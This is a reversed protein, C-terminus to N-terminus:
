DSRLQIGRTEPFTWVWTATIFAFGAALLLGSSVGAGTAIVVMLWQTVVQFSRSVNYVTGMATNRISTPFLEALLAGFGATCGSGFGVAAMTLWFGTRQELMEAGWFGLAVLGAMTLLGYLTFTPRRGFRDALPGFLVMGLVLAVQAGLQLNRQLSGFDGSTVGAAALRQKELEMFYDPLWVFTLWFTGLKSAGLVLGQLTRRWHDRVLVVYPEVLSRQGCESQALWMASEPVHRRLFFVLAAPLAGLFFVWRWGIHPELWLGSLIALIGGVPQGAQLLASALGRRHRPFVEALLAQGTAWEGGFGFGTIARLFALSVLSWALGSLGTSLSYVLITWGMVRRRGFRDALGGFVVGGLGSTFLAIGLLLAKNKTFSDGWHWEKGIASAVFAFLMMDYHDFLWGLLCLVLTRWRQAENVETRVPISAAVPPEGM